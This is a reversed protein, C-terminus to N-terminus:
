RRVVGSSLYLLTPRLGMRSGIHGVFAEDKSVDYRLVGNRQSPCCDLLLLFLFAFFYFVFLLSFCELSSPVGM